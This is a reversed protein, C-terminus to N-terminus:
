KRRFRKSKNICVIGGAAAAAAALLGMGTWMLDAGKGRCLAAGFFVGPLLFANMVAFIAIQERSM